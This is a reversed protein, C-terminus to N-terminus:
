DSAPDSQSSIPRQAILICIPLTMQSVPNLEPIEIHGATQKSQLIFFWKILLHALSQEKLKKRVIQMMLSLSQAQVIDSLYRTPM